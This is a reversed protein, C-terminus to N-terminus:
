EEDSDPLATAFYFIDSIERLSGHSVTNILQDNMAITATQGGDLTYVTPIGMEYLRRAFSPITPLSFNPNERNADVVVYHLTDMQCLAARAYNGHIEGCYYSDPACYEGDLVLVPGFCLSFRINNDDVFKQATEKDTIEGAYTFLLDGNEDIYCTDQNGGLERYVQGEYVVIGVNRYDYFDGSSAVVANVSEAMEVTTQLIGSNYKGASLFRRLQSPHAIKVESFTYVCNDIVQKWTVAFITEDLYYYITSDEKIQIDTTFLTKQGDLLTAAQELIDQMQAPDTVQGYCDPNPNPAVIDSDNLVYTRPIPIVDELVNSVQNTLNREFTDMIGTNVSSATSPFGGNALIAFLLIVTLLCSVVIVIPNTRNKKHETTKVCSVEKRCILTANTKYIGDIEPCNLLFSKM